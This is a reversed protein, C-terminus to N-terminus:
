RRLSMSTSKPNAKWTTGGREMEDRPWQAGLQSGIGYDRLWEMQAVFKPETYVHRMMASFRGLDNM